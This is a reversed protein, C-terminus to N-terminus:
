PIPINILHPYVFKPITFGIEVDTVSSPIVFNKKKKKQTEKMQRHGFSVCLFVDLSIRPEVGNM